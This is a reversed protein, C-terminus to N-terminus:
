ATAIPVSSSSRRSTSAWARCRNPWCSSTTTASVTRRRIRTRRRDAGPVARAAARRRRAGPDAARRPDAPQGQALTALEARKSNDRFFADLVQEMHRLNAQIERGVQALLLREQARKSMEDLMPAAAAAAVAAGQARRRPARADRRGAEPVGAVPERLERVRERGAAAGTAYEMAVPESVGSAPMKDLREVLAATLKM